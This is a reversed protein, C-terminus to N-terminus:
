APKEAILILSQGLGFNRGQRLWWNEIRLPWDLLSELLPPGLEVGSAPRARSLPEWVRFKFWAIPLLLANAYTVRRIRLGQQRVAQILAARTFRQREDVFRSHNSRLADLASTRIVALGGPALVRAIEGLPAPEQGRDFHALVDLALVASFAHDAFPLHALDGQTLHHVGRHQAHSLGIWSLDLAHVRWRYREALLAAQYGTGCGAELVPGAIPRGKLEEDLLTFLIRRMGQFWWMREEAAAINTFEAPNM